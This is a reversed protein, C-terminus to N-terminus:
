FISFHTWLVLIDGSGAHPVFTSTHIFTLINYFCYLIRVKQSLYVNKMKKLLVMLVLVNTAEMKIQVNKTKTKV